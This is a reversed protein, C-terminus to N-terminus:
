IIIFVKQFYKSVARRSMDRVLKEIFVKTAESSFQMKLSSVGSLKNELKKLKDEITDLEVRYRASTSESKNVINSSVAVVVLNHLNKISKLDESVDIDVSKSLAELSSYTDKNSELTALLTSDNLYSEFLITRSIKCSSVVLVLAVLYYKM